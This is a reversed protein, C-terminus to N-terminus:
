KVSFAIDGQSVDSGQMLRAMWHLVYAGAELHRVGSYLTNPQSNLRPHLTQVIRGDRLVSLVSAGHDVPADFRVFFETQEGDMIAQAAPRSEMVRVTAALASSALMLGAATCVMVSAALLTPSSTAKKM